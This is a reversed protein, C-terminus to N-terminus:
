SVGKRQLYTGLLKDSGMIHTALWEKLFKSTDIAVTLRGEQAAKSLDMTQETLDDHQKKHAVFGPYSHAKMLDEETRFHTRTYDLLGRLVKAAGQNGSGRQMAEFLENVLAVLRKHQQDMVKVGVSYDDKWEFFGM